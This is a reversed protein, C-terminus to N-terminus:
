EPYQALDIYPCRARVGIGRAQPRRRTTREVPVVALSVRVVEAMGDPMRQTVGDVVEAGQARQEPAGLDDM